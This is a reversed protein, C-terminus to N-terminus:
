MPRFAPAHRRFLLARTLITSTRSIVLGIAEGIRLAYISKEFIVSLKTATM